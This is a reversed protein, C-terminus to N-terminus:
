RCALAALAYTNAVTYKRAHLYLAAYAALRQGNTSGNRLVTSCLTVNRRATAHM